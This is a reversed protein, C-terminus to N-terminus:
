TLCIIGSYHDIETKPNQIESKAEGIEEQATRITKKRLGCDFIRM